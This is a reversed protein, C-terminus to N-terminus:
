AGRVTTAIGKVGLGSFFRTTTRFQRRREQGRYLFYDSPLSDDCHKDVLTPEGEDGVDRLGPGGNALGRHEDVLPPARLERRNASDSRPTAEGEPAALPRDASGLHDRREPVQQPVASTPRDQDARVASGVVPRLEHAREQVRLGAELDVAERPVRRLEVRVLPPPTVQLLVLEGAICRAIHSLEPM